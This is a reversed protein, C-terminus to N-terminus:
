WKDMNCGKPDNPPCMPRPLSSRTIISSKPSSASHAVTQVYAASGTVTLVLVAARVLNTM